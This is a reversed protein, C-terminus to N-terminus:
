IPYLLDKTHPHTWDSLVELNVVALSERQIPPDWNSGASTLGHRDSKDLNEVAM